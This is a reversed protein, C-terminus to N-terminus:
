RVSPGYTRGAAAVPLIWVHQQDWRQHEDGHRETEGQTAPQVAELIQADVPPTERDGPETKL